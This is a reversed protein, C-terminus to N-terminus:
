ARRPSRTFWGVRDGRFGTRSLPGARLPHITARVVPADVRPHRDATRTVLGFPNSVTLGDDVEGPLAVARCSFWGRGTRFNRRDTQMAAGKPEFESAMSTRPARVDNCHVSPAQFRAEWLRGLVARRGRAGPCILAVRVCRRAPLDMRWAIPDTGLSSSSRLSHAKPGIAISCNHFLPPAVPPLREARVERALPKMQAFGKGGAPVPQRKSRM